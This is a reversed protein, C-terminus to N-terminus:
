PREVPYGDLDYGDPPADLMYGDLGIRPKPKAMPFGWERYDETTKERHCDFCLAMLNDIDWPDGGAYIPHIHDVCRSAETFGKDLCRECLPREARIKLSLNTWRRTGHVGKTRQLHRMRLLHEETTPIM